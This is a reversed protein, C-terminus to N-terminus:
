GHARGGEITRAEIALADRLMSRRLARMGGTSTDAEVEQRALIVFWKCAVGCPTGAVAAALVRASTDLQRGLARTRRRLTKRAAEWEPATWTPEGIRAAQEERNALADWAAAEAVHLAMTSQAFRIVAADPHFTLDFTDRINNAVMYIDKRGENAKVIETVIGPQPYGGPPVYSQGERDMRM